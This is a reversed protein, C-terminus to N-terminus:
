PGNGGDKNNHRQYKCAEGNDVGAQAVKEKGCVEIRKDTKFGLQTILYVEM